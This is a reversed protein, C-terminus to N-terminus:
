LQNKMIIKVRSDLQLVSFVGKTDFTLYFFRNIDFAMVIVPVQRWSSGGCVILRGQEEEWLMSPGFVPNPFPPLAPSADDCGFM